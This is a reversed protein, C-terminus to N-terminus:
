LSQLCNAQGPAIQFQFHQPSAGRLTAQRRRAKMSMPTRQESRARQTGNKQHHHHQDVHLRAVENHRTPSHADCRAVRIKETEHKKESSTFEKPMLSTVTNRKSSIAYSKNTKQM